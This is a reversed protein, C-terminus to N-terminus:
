HSNRREKVPQHNKENEKLANDNDSRSNDSNSTEDDQHDENGENYEVRNVMYFGHSAFYTYFILLTINLLSIFACIGSVLNFAFLEEQLNGM